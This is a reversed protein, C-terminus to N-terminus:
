KKLRNRISSFQVVDLTLDTTGRCLMFDYGVPSNSSRIWEYTVEARSSSEKM